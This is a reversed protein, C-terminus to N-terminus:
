PKRMWKLVEAKCALGLAHLAAPVTLTAKSSSPTIPAQGSEAQGTLVLEQAAPSTPAEQDDGFLSLLAGSDPRPGHDWTAKANLRLKSEVQGAAQLIRHIELDDLSTNSKVYGSLYQDSDVKVGNRQCLIYAVSEAEIERIEHSLHRRNPISRKFDEGLHGLWLHGLEHALTAFKAAPTYNQNVAIEYRHPKKGDSTWTRRIVGARNAGADLPSVHIDMINLCAVIEAYRFDTMSGSAGFGFADQPIERGETDQVDYVLAVPAFPWLILLPRADKKITRGFRDRWDRASAAYSVGPKQMHLLMANFPAFNRLKVVFDLLQKYKASNSYLKSAVLLDDLLGREIASEQNSGADAM